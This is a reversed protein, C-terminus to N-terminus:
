FTIWPIQHFKMKLSYYFTFSCWYKKWRYDKSNILEWVAKTESCVKFLHEIISYPQLEFLDDYELYCSIVDPYIEPHCEAIADLSMRVGTKLSYDRERGSLCDHLLVCHNIFSKFQEKTYNSFYKILCQQRYEQYEAHPMELMRRENRDELLVDLLEIIENSFECKWNEPFDIELRKLQECLKQMMLCDSLESKELKGVLYKEIFPLDAKTMEEGSFPIKSIYNEFVQCVSDKYKSQSM